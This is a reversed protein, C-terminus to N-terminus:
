RKDKIGPRSSRRLTRSRTRPTSHCPRLDTFTLRSCEYSESSRVQSKLFSDLCSEFAAPQLKVGARKVIDRNRGLIFIYGEEDILGTDGSRFWPGYQDEYFDEQKVNDLYNRIFSINSYHIEGIEGRKMPQNQENAIRLRTGKQVKGLTAIGAYWPLKSEQSGTVNSYPWHYVAGGETMGHGNVIAANPFARAAKAYLNRTVMDAGMLVSELSSKDTKEFDPHAVTAHLMAPIFIACTLRQDQMSKLLSGPTFAPGPMVISGGSTFSMFAVVLCIARFNATTIGVRSRHHQTPGLYHGKLIHLYSAVTRPCGKPVGTTTGSTFMLNCVRNLNDNKASREIEARATDSIVPSAFSSLTIWGTPVEQTDNLVIKVQPKVVELVSLAKDIASASGVDPVIVVDPLTRSLINQLEAARPANLMGPDQLSLLYKGVAFTWALLTWEIGNPMFTVIRTDTRLNYKEALGGILQIAAHHLEQYTWTLYPQDSRDKNGTLGALYSSDQHTVVIATDDPYSQLTKELVHYFSPPIELPGDYVEALDSTSISGM